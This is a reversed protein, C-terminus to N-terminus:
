NPTLPFKYCNKDFLNFKNQPKTKTIFIVSIIRLKVIPM